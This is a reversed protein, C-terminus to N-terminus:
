GYITLASVVYVSSQVTPIGVTCWSSLYGWLGLAFVLLTVEVLAGSFVIFLRPRSTRDRLIGVCPWTPGRGVEGLRVLRSSARNCYTVAREDTDQMADRAEAGVETRVTRDCRWRQCRRRRGSVTYHACGYIHRRTHSHYELTCYPARTCSRPARTRM